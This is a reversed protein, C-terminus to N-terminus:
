CTQALERMSSPRCCLLTSKFSLQGAGIAAKAKTHTGGVQKLRLIDSEGYIDDAPLDDATGLAGALSGLGQSDMSPQPEVLALPYM